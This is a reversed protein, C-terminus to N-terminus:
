AWGKIFEAVVRDIHEQMAARASSADRAVIASFITQHDQVSAWRLAPTHFHEELRIWLPGRLQTWLESVVQVLVQNGTAQAIQQHFRLDCAEHTLKDNCSNRMAALEAHIRDVDADKRLLAAQAAIEAEILRRAQLIEFPGPGSSVYLSGHLKALAKTKTYIGSGMRVEVIDQVELAVVAERVATRSVQFRDALARESPLRTGVPFEGAKILGIIQVALKQYSRENADESASAADSLTAKADTM